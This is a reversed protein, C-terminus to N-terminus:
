SAYHVTNKGDFWSVWFKILCFLGPVLSKIRRLGKFIMCNMTIVNKELIKDFLMLM